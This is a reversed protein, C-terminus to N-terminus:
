LKEKISIKDNPKITGEKIVKAFVGERPMVCDGVTYYIHCRDHCEKGIIKIELVTGEGINIRTNIPLNVLDIGSTTINEAFDGSKVDIGKARMKEISEIALLSVQRKSGAHADGVIGYDSKLKVKSVNKKKEGKKASISVALV